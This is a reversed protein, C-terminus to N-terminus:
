VPAPLPVGAAAQRWLAEFAADRLQAEDSRLAAYLDISLEGADLGPLVGLAALKEELSGASLTRRLTELAARGPGVSLGERGAVEVLWPLTSLDRVIPAVKWPASHRRDVAEAAAGRVVWQKDDVQLKELIPDPWGEPVRALGFVAARRTISDEMEIADRLMSYGEDPHISLAEGAAVRLAEEGSLLAHGLGEMAQDSGLSALALCAAQRPRFHPDENAITILKPISEADRAAGVGLAGLARSTPSEATLLRRFLLAVSSEGAHLLAEASRIRLGYPRQDDALLMGLSRLVQGRWAASRQASRMWRACSFLGSELVDGRRQLRLDVAPSVEGWASYLGITTEAISWSERGLAEPMGTQTMARAALYAGVLPQFFSVRGDARRSLIGAEVLDGVSSGRPLSRESVAGQRESLWALAVGEAVPLEDPSLFRVLYAELGDHTSRGRIDGAFSAWVRLTIDLPTLGRLGGTLWGAILLPDVDGLRNRPLHPQVFQVWSASWKSLFLRQEHEGWPAISVPSLGAAVLGDYGSTPGAVVLRTGPYGELLERAWEAYPPIEEAPMEDLGDLLVLARKQRLQLRLYNPLRSAVVPSAARQAAQLLPELPDKGNRRDVRLDAAHILIPAMQAVVGADADRRTGRIALYALATTKGSGPDGTLLLNAGSALAEEISLRPARYLGALSNWDPINPLVGFIDEHVAEARMPDLLPSPALVAPPVLIDDLTFLARAMHLSQARTQLDARFRDTAGSTLNDGVWQAQKQAWDSVWTLTPGLRYVLYAVGLGVLVGFFFEPFNFQSGFLGFPM